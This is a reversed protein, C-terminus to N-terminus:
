QEHNLLKIIDNSGEENIYSPVRLEKSEYTIIESLLEKWNKYRYQKLQLHGDNARPDFEFALPIKDTRSIDVFVYPMIEYPEEDIQTLNDVIVQLADTYLGAQIDYRMKLWHDPFDYAPMGSTKLDVPIIYRNKHDVVLLDPMFKVTIKKHCINMSVMFKAQYIYEIDDSKKGGFLRNIVSNNEIAKKMDMIDNWDQVSIIEKGYADYIFDYYDIYEELKKLRTEPKWNKQYEFEDCVNLKVSNEIHQWVTGETVALIRDLIAKITTPPYDGEFVAYHQRTEDLGKTMLSDFLTGFKMEPTPTVKDHLTGLAKFGGRAYRAITSYSWAPHAHYREEDMNM